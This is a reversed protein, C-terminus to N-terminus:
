PARVRLFVDSWSNADNPVLNTADSNFAVIRGDASLAPQAFFSSNADGEVGTSSVSMRRTTKTKRDRLFVDYAFNADGPVLNTAPSVFAVFRGNPSIASFVDSDNDAQIGRGKVSMRETTGIKRDRLFVDTLDNTDGPVLNSASSAFTVYRGDPSMSPAISSRNAVVGRQSLSVRETIGKKRDRVYIQQGLVDGQVLTTARSNFAVYRGDFSIALSFSESAFDGQKGTSSVSARESSGNKLDRVFIDTVGNTDGPVLDSAESQFAVFRGDASIVPTVSRGNGTVGSPTLSACITTGTLRDRVFIDPAFNDDGPVWNDSFSYFAVYRGDPTISAGFSSGTGEAAAPGLSVRTLAGSKRDRLFVDDAGNTDGKVLNSAFSNFAVFRGSPSMAPRQSESNGEVGGSGVSVRKTVGNAWAATAAGDLIAVALILAPAGARVRRM